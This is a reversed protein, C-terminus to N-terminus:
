QFVVTIREYSGIAAGSSEASGDPIAQAYTGHVGLLSISDGDELCGTTDTNNVLTFTEWSGVSSRDGDLDGDSQASWFFLGSQNSINVSDGNMVCGQVASNSNLIMSEYSGLAAGDAKITGGGNGEFAFYDGHAGLLGLNISTLGFDASDLGVLDMYTDVYGCISGIGGADCYLYMEEDMEGIDAIWVSNTLAYNIWLDEGNYSVNRLAVLVDLEVKNRPTAFFYEGGGDSLCQADAEAWTVAATTIMWDSDARSGDSEALKRCGAYHSDTGADDHFRDSSASLLAYDGAGAPQTSDRDWSWVMDEPQLADEGKKAWADGGGFGATEIINEGAAWLGSVESPTIVDGTDATTKTSGDYTRSMGGRGYFVNDNYTSKNWVTSSGMVVVNAGMSLVKSKTLTDSPLETAGDSGYDGHTAIGSDTRLAYGELNNVVKNKVKTKHSSASGAMSLKLLIVEGPNEDAFDTIDELAANLTRYGTIGDWCENGNWLNNHCVRVNSGSYHVDLLIQRVGMEMLTSLGHTHNQYDDFYDDDADNAMANHAGVWSTELFPADNDLTTQINLVREGWDSDSEAHLASSALGLILVAGLTYPRKAAAKM